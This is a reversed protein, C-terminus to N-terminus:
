CARISLKVALIFPKDAAVNATRTHVIAHTTRPKSGVLKCLWLAAIAGVFRIAFYSAGINTGLNIFLELM